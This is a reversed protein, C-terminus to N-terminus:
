RGRSLVRISCTLGQPSSSIQPASLSPHNTIIGLLFLSHVNNFKAELTESRRPDTEYYLNGSPSAVAYQSRHSPNTKFHFQIEFVNFRCYNSVSRIDVMVVAGLMGRWWFGLEGQNCQSSSGIEDSLDSFSVNRNDTPEWFPARAFIM